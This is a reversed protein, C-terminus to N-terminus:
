EVNRIYLRSTDDFYFYKRPFIESSSNPVLNNIISSTKYEDLLRMVYVFTILCDFNPDIDYIM